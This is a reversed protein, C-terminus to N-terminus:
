ENGFDPQHEVETPQYKEGNRGVIDLNSPHFIVYNRTQPLENIKGSPYSSVSPLKITPWKDIFDQAEEKTEFRPGYSGDNFDVQFRPGRSGQDLYKLGPIGINHLTESAQQDPSIKGRRFFQKSLTNYFEEGTLNTNIDQLPPNLSNKLKNVLEPSQESLPNDWDLLENENPKINVALVNGPRTQHLKVGQDVWRNLTGMMDKYDERSMISKYNDYTKTREGDLVEEPDFGDKLGQILRSTAWREGKSLGSDFQNFLYNHNGIEIMDQTPQGASKYTEAVSPHGAIYHGWGYAQAGEGTGINENKFRGFPANEEPLFTHPTGHWGQISGPGFSLAINTAKELENPDLVRQSLTQGQHQQQSQQNAQSMDSLFNSVYNYVRSPLRNLQSDTAEDVFNPKYDIPYFHYPNDQNHLFEPPVGPQNVSRPDRWDYYMDPNITLPHHLISLDVDGKAIEPNFGMRWQYHSPATNPDPIPFQPNIKRDMFPSVIEPTLNIDGVLEQKPLITSSYEAVPPVLGGPEGLQGGLLLYNTVDDPM